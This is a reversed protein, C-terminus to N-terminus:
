KVERYQSTTLTMTGGKVIADHSLQFAALPEGNVKKDALYRHTDKFNDVVISFSEGPYYNQDLDIDIRAFSPLALQYSPEGVLDPYFGMMAFVLWASLTGADDNGPIGWPSTTFYKDVAYRVEEQTRYEKGAVYNYLFPYQIDPENTMDFYFEDFSEDLRAIFQEEGMIDILGPMDHPVFFLYQWATGEVYGPGGSMEWRIDWHRDLPNFPTMWSGDVNRPRLFGTEEDYLKRYSLSQEHFAKADETKGLAEALKAINWDALNYELTTSVTGWVIGNFWGFDKGEGGRDDQPIYGLERYHKLGPRMHNFPETQTAAKVMAGYVAEVDFDTLGKRYSDVVVPVAPDGVMTAAEMGFLEWKPLWGSDHVMDAMSKLMDTQQKPHTLTILPHVTRYTDWLSFTSYRTYGEAKRVTKGDMSLYEGNVDSYTQPMILSHYLATYFKTNNEPTGGQVKVVSLEKEWAQAASQRIQAFSKGQQEVKLNERANEVSVFSIGVRLEIETAEAFDYSFHVGEYKGGEVRKAAKLFEPSEFKAYSAAPKSFEASFFVKRMQGADCFNGEAQFGEVRNESVHTITGGKTEGQNLALDFIFNTQGAPVQYRSIGSRTTASMEALVGFTDLFVRYYGPQALERSYRSRTDKQALSLEGTTIKVPLAGSSPCGVGSLQMHGFGYIYPKGFVYAASNKDNAFDINQPVVSAMGWPLVAGPYTNGENATGIFPDVWQSVLGSSQSMVATSSEASSTTEGGCGGLLFGASLALLATKCTSKRSAFM